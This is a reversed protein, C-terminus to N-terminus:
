SFSFIQTSSNEPINNEDWVHIKVLCTKVKKILKSAAVQPSNFGLGWKKKPPPNDFEGM